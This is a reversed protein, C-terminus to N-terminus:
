SVKYKNTTKLFVPILAMIATSILLLFQILVYYQSNDWFAGIIPLLTLSLYMTFRYRLFRKRICAMMPLYFIQYLSIASTTAVVGFIIEFAQKTDLTYIESIEKQYNLSVVSILLSFLSIIFWFILSILAFQSRNKNYITQIKPLLANSFLMPISASFLYAILMSSYFHPIIFYLIIISFLNLMSVFVAEKKFENSTLVHTKFFIELSHINHESRGRKTYLVFFLLYSFQFIAYIFLYFEIDRNNRSVVVMLFMSFCVFVGSMLSIKQMHKIVCINRVIDVTFLAFGLLLLLSAFLVSQTSIALIVWITICFLLIYFKLKEYFYYLLSLASYQLNVDVFNLTNLYKNKIIASIYYSLSITFGAAAFYQSPLKALIYLSGFFSILSNFIQDVLPFKIFNITISFIIKIKQSYNASLKHM